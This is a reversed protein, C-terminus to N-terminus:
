PTLSKYYAILGAIEKEKLQGEFSPMSNPFGPRAQAQPDLISRRIYNEDVLQKSGDSLTITLGFQGKWSPGVRPSGDVTHCSNCGKQAYLAAGLEAPPKTASNADADALYKEYEGPKHVVVVRKMQSHDTGCYEACDLRYTGPKTAEFWAYTYRRPVVDQKIRFAPVYFSHLVDKATMVLRVPTNVPVHLNADQYGNPQTFTWNWKQALVQIEVARQPPTTLVLYNRWGYLFLFVCIITPIVTWTIELTDNHSSSPEAKHGPRHRYKVVFYIVIGTIAFFFFASLGLCVYFMQDSGEAATSANVPMWYNSNAPM